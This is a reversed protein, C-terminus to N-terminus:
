ISLRELLRAPNGVYVCREPVNKTVVAGAGIIAHDGVTVGPMILAGAGIWVNRGITVPRHVPREGPGEDPASHRELSNKLHTVSSIVCNSSILTGDGITVGGRAFIQTFANIQVDDGVSLHDLANLNCLPSILQRRGCHKFHSQWRRVEYEQYGRWFRGFARYVFRSLM